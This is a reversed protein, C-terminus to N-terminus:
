YRLGHEVYFKLLVLAEGWGGAQAVIARRGRPTNVFGYERLRVVTGEPNPSFEIEVTTPPSTSEPHEQFVFRRPRIAELIPCDDQATVKDPGWDRWRFRLIGGPRADISAGETFWGDLGDATTFADYVREPTAQISVSKKIEVDLMEAM